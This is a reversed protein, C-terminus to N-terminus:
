ENTRKPFLIRQETVIVDLREDTSTFPVSSLIQFDYCYGVRKANEHNRFYRDYCGGGYGLRNGRKDVALLPAVVIDMEGFYPEGVPERIGLRNVSFDEAYEVATMEGNRMRPCFIRIDRSQLKEILKDTPAESSFSLYVLVNLRTGAGKSQVVEEELVSFVKLFNKILGREKIDRNENCSRREKAYARLRKKSEEVSCPLAEVFQLKNTHM